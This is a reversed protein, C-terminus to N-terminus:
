VGIITWPNTWSAEPIYERVITLIPVIAFVPMKESALRLFFKYCFLREASLRCDPDNGFYLKVVRM